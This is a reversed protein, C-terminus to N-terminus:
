KMYARKIVVDALPWDQNPGRSGTRVCEIKKVVDMGSVVAGFVTYGASGPMPNLSGNDAVNIFFQSTASNPEMTRAMAITGALNKLGNKAELKVPGRTRKQSGDSLHGGGQIMFGPIVRHFITGDFFGDKVYKAFNEVTEPAKARDLEIEINGMTMELVAVETPASM